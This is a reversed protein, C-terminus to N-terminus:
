LEFRTFVMSSKEIGADACDLGEPLGLVQLHLAPMTNSLATGFSCKFREYTGDDHMMRDAVVRPDERLMHQIHYLRRLIMDYFEKDIAISGVPRGEVWTLPELALPEYVNSTIKLINIDTTGGGADCVLIVDGKEYQQQSAYVAAAEAETLGIRARHDMGDAGFGAEKILKETDAIMSPSKWTTPVSFTFEVKQRRWNPAVDSIVEAIHNHLCRLYDHFWRRAQQTTPRDPRPDDRFAPDLHLKFCDVLNSHDNNPDCLFGWAEVHSSAPSYKLVTPVKNALENIM